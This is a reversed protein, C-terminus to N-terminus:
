RNLIASLGRQLSYTVYHCTLPHDDLVIALGSSDGRLDDPNWTVSLSERSVASREFVVARNPEFVADLEMDWPYPKHDVWVFEEETILLETLSGQPLRSVNAIQAIARSWESVAVRDFDSVSRDMLSMAEPDVYAHQEVQRSDVLPARGAERAYLSRSALAAHELLGSLHGLVVEVYVFERTVVCTAGAASHVFEVATLNDHPRAAKTALFEAASMVGGAPSGDTSRVYVRDFHATSSPDSTWQRVRRLGARDLSELAGPHM